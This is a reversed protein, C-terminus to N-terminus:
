GSWPCAKLNIQSREKIINRKNNMKIQVQDKEKEKKNDKIAQSPKPKHEGEEKTRIEKKYANLINCYTRRRFGM